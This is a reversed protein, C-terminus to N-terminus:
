RILNFYWSLFQNGFLVSFMIGASLYPGFAFKDHKKTMAIRVGEIMAGSICGAILALLGHGWGICLGACAMLEIDGYGLGSKGTVKKFLVAVLFLFLGMGAFGLIYYLANERHMLLHLVGLVAILGDAKGPIHMTRIDIVAVVLLASFLLCWIVSDWSWGALAFILCYMIGNVLEVVPYQLSIKAGCYRCKGRLFLWSFLPFLDYWKLKHRCSMCHSGATVISEEKPMRVICVNLFSGLIIGYLFVIIYLIFNEMAM